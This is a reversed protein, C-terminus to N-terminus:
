KGSRTIKWIVGTNTKPEIGHPTVNVVGFDVIYLEDGRFKLFVPRELGAKNNWSSPGAEKNAIFDEQAGTKSNIHVIKFGSVISKEEKGILEGFQAVYADGKNGFSSSISFDIGKSQSIGLLRFPQPPESPYKQLLPKISDNGPSSFDKLPMGAYFDPWGFWAGEKLEWLVDGTGKVPRNGRNDYGNEIIYIKGEENKAFGVPDRFGWAVLEPRGGKLPIRMVSGNCPVGGKIVQLNNTATGYSSFAGTKIKSSDSKLLNKSTFNEGLLTIDQCPIDHFNKNRKLWGIQNNDPGVVGANTASGQGFYIYNDKIIPGNTHHDGLSPLKDILVSIKGEPSIKLIKGGDIANGDSVYFNGEYYSIGNWRGNKGDKAVTILNGNEIKILRPELGTNGLGGSEIVYPIGKEDFDIGSPFNLGSAIAEIKYGEPISIDAV